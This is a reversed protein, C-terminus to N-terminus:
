LATRLESAREAGRVGLLRRVEEDTTQDFTEYWLGVAQFPAPMELCVVEDALRNLRTCTDRAGVPVAVVIRSPELQRLAIVAAQMTSGTALGDDIVIVVHGRVPSLRRGARYRQDRRDLELRECM